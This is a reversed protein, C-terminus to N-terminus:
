RLLSGLTAVTLEFPSTVATPTPVASMMTVTLPTLPEVGITTPCLTVTLAGCNEEAPPTEFTVVVKVLVAAAPPGATRLTAISRSRGSPQDAVAVVGLVNELTAAPWFTLVVQATVM